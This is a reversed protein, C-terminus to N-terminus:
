FRDTHHHVVRWEGAEKRFITTAHIDTRILERRRRM